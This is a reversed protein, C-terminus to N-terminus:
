QYARALANGASATYRGKEREDLTSEALRRQINQAYFIVSDHTGAAEHFRILAQGALVRETTNHATYWKGLLSDPTKIPLTGFASFRSGSAPTAPQGLGITVIACLGIISFLRKM